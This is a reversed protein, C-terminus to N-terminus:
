SRYCNGPSLSLGSAIGNKILRWFVQIVWEDEKLGVVFQWSAYRCSSAPGIRHLVQLIIIVFTPIVLVGGIEKGVSPWPGAKLTSSPRAQQHLRNGPCRPDRALAWNLVGVLCSAIGLLLIALRWGEWGGFRM